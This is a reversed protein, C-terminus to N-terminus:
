KTTASRRRLAKRRGTAAPRAKGMKAPKRASGSGKRPNSNLTRSILANPLGLRSRLHDELGAMEGGDSEHDYGALHLVGHLILVKLEVAQSHHLKRASRAAIEASIAIDGAHDLKPTGPFSLVDTSYDKQRYWRNLERMRRSTTILIAVDGSLGIAKLARAGFRRLAAPDFRGKVDHQITVAM